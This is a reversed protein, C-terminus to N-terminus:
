SVCVLMLRLRRLGSVRGKRIRGMGGGGIGGSRGRRMGSRRRGGRRRYVRRLRSNKGSPRPKQNRSPNKAPSSPRQRHSSQSHAMPPPPPPSNSSPTSSTNSVTELPTKSTNKSTEAPQTSYTSHIPTTNTININKSTHYSSFYPLPPVYKFESEDIPNPDTVTLYGADVVLDIGKEVTVENRFLEIFYWYFNGNLSELTRRPGLSRHSTVYLKQAQEALISSVDM